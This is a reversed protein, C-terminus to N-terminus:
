GGQNWTGTVEGWVADCMRECGLRARRGKGIGCVRVELGLEKALARYESVHGFLFSVHPLMQCVVSAHRECVYTGSLSFVLPRGSASCYRAVQM